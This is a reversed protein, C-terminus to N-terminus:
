SGHNVKPASVWGSRHCLVVRKTPSTVAMYSLDMATEGCGLIVVTKDQGFQECSKFASSHLVVPVKELGHLKPLEPDVHLGSCIAVADCEWDEEKGNNPKYRIAHGTGRRTISVVRTSLHIHQWLKFASCYQELYELYRVASM